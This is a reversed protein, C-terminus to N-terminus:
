VYRGFVIQYVPYHYVVGLANCFKVIFDVAPTSDGNSWRNDRGLSELYSRRELPVATSTYHRMAEFARGRRGVSPKQGLTFSHLHNVYDNGCFVSLVAKQRRSLCNLEDYDCQM